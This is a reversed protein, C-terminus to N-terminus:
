LPTKSLEGPEERVLRPVLYGPLRRRLEVMIARAHDDDVRFHAAGAVPDLMHLYYPLVHVQFLRESLEELVSADDNVGKLLVSQNLLALGRRHLRGLAIDAADSIERAHNAHIVVITQLRTHALLTLLAETVREPVVVPMRTHLRLRRLHPIAQLLSILQSLRTDPLSLPDGGSLIVESISDDGRIVALAPEWNQRSPNHDAYPFHRRFCYRCHIACVGTAVLLVRGPYKALLGPVPQRHREGLPDTSFGEVHLDEEAVPLVQRLLPDAPDGAAMAATFSRPVRLPFQQLSQRALEVAAAPLSATKLLVAPDRISDQFRGHWSSIAVPNLTDYAGKARMGPATRKVHMGCAAGTRAWAPKKGSQL